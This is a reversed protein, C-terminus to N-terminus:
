ECEYLAELLESYGYMETDLFCSLLIMDLERKENLPLMNCAVLVSDAQNRFMAIADEKKYRTMNSDIHELYKQQSVYLIFPLLDGRQVLLQRRKHEKDYQILWSRVGEVKASKEKYGLRNMLQMIAEPCDENAQMDELENLVAVVRIALEKQEAIRFMDSMHKMSMGKVESHKSKSFVGKAQNFVESYVLSNNELTSYTIKALELINDQLMKNVSKGKRSKFYAKIKSYPDRNSHVLAGREWEAYSTEMLMEDMRKGAEKRVYCLIQKRYQTMYSLATYSYGKFCAANDIMFMTFEKQSLNKHQEFEKLIRKTNNEQILDLDSRLSKEFTLIMKQCTDFDLSNEYGYMYILEHYDNVRFGDENLGEQLYREVECLSLGLLFGIQFIHMRSPRAFGNLGFWRRMTMRDAINEKNIRDYFIHYADIRHQELIDSEVDVFERIIFEDFKYFKNNEYVKM